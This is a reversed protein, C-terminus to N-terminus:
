RDDRPDLPVERWRPIEVLSGVLAGLLAGAGTVGMRRWPNSPPDGERYDHGTETVVIESLFAGVAGFLAGRWRADGHGDRVRLRLISATPVSRVRESDPSSIWLSDPTRAYLIGTAVRYPLAPSQVQLWAGSPIERTEQATGRFPTAAGLLLLAAAPLLWGRLRRGAGEGCWRGNM